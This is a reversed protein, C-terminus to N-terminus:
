CGSRPETGMVLDLAPRLWPTFREPTVLLDRRLKEIGVWHWEDVEDPDPAPVGVPSGTFVHDYEHEILGSVPDPATYLFTGVEELGGATIGMEEPLRREAAGRPSEGPRPHTCCTNAWLGGFHYKASARRQMLLEDDRLIFISVARHLQGSRHAELKEAVGIRNGRDDVLEVSETM